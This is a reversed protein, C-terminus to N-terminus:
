SLGIKFAKQRLIREQKFSHKEKACKKINYVIQSRKAEDRVTGEEQSSKTKETVM